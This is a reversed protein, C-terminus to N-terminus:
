VLYTDIYGKSKAMEHCDNVYREIGPFAKMLSDIIEKAREVPINLQDALNFESSGYLVGFTAGKSFSRLHPYLEKVKEVPVDKLEEAFVKKAMSSHLDAGSNLIEKLSEENAMGTFVNVELSSFDFSLFLGGGMIPTIKKIKKNM